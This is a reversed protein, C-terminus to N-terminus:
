RHVYQYTCRQSAQTAQRWVSLGTGYLGSALVLFVDCISKQSLKIITGRYKGKPYPVGAKPGGSGDYERAKVLLDVAAAMPAPVAVSGEELGVQTRTQQTCPLM